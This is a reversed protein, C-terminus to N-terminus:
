HITSDLLIGNAWYFGTASDPLIDYTYKKGYVMTRASSVNSGDLTDGARIDGIYRGDGVPHGPSAFVERGDDLIVHIVHHTLPVTTKSANLVTVAFREGRADISWVLMGEQIDQIPVVGSPTDIMTNEALCIPCPRNYDTTEKFIALDGEIRILTLTVTCGNSVSEGIRLTIPYGQDTAVPYERYALGTVYDGYIKQLLFPGERQGVKLRVESGQPTPTALETPTQTPTPSLFPPNISGFNVVYIATGVVAILLIIISYKM